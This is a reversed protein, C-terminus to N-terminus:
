RRAKAVQDATVVPAANGWSNRIYNTVDAIQQDSLQRAYAPMSGPNPARPTTLTQAGDLIIRLTSAPDASQLLANGNLPPYIHPSSSGDVEHCAICNHAYVEKGTKMEAETPAPVTVEPVGAPLSRLFVAIAKVDSDSMKSTSNVVVEAM